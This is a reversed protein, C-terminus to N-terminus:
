ENDIIQVINNCINRLNHKHKIANFCVHYLSGHGISYNGSKLGFLEFLSDIECGILEDEHEIASQESSFTKGDNTQYATIEKPM